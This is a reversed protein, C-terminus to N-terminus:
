RHEFWRTIVVDGERGALIRSADVVDVSGAENEVPLTVGADAAIVGRETVAVEEVTAPDTLRPPRRREFRALIEELDHRPTPSAIFYFSEMGRNEDLHWWRTGAPITIQSGAAVPNGVASEASPTLPTIWGTADINVAYLWCRQSPRLTIKFKDSAALDGDGDHLIAGDEIPVARLSGDSAHELRLMAIDLALPVDQSTEIREDDPLDLGNNRARETLTASMAITRMLEEIDGVYDQAYNQAATSILNRAFNLAVPALVAATECSGFTLLLALPIWCVAKRNSRKSASDM